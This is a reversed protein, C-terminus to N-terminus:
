EGQKWAELSAWWWKGEPLYPNLHVQPDSSKQQFKRVPWVRLGLLPLSWNLWCPRGQEGEGLILEEGWLQADRLGLEMFFSSRPGSLTWPLHVALHFRLANSCQKKRVHLESCTALQWSFKSQLPLSQRLSTERAEKTTIEFCSGGGRLFKTYGFLQTNWSDDWDGAVHRPKGYGWHCRREALSVDLWLVQGESKHYLLEYKKNM